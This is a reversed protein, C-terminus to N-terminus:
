KLAKVTRFLFLFSLLNVGPHTVATCEISHDIEVRGHAIRVMRCLNYRCVIATVMKMDIVCSVDCLRVGNRQLQKM